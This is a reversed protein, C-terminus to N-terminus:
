AVEILKGFLSRQDAWNVSRMVLRLHRESTIAESTTGDLLREQINPALLSLNMIQTLRARTVYGLRAIEAYDRVEGRDIMGQFKIALAVLRSIRPIRPPASQATPAPLQGYQSVARRRPSPRLTLSIQVSVGAEAASAEEPPASAVKRPM